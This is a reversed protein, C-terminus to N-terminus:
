RIKRMKITSTYTTGDPQERIANWELVGKEPSSIVWWERHEEETLGLNKWRCCIMTADLVYQAFEDNVQWQGNNWVYFRYNGDPLFEWRHRETDNFDSGMDSTVKGEWLGLIEKEYNATVREYRGSYQITTVKYGDIYTKVKSVGCMENDTISTVKMEDIVTVHSNIHLTKTIKRGKIVVETKGRKSLSSNDNDSLEIWSTSAYGETPSLFTVIHSLNTLLPSGNREVIMWKGTIKESLKGAKNFCSNLSLIAFAFVM